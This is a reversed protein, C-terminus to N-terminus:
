FLLATERAHIKDMGQLPNQYPISLSRNRLTAGHSEMYTMSRTQPRGRARDAESRWLSARPLVRLPIQPYHRRLFEILSSGNMVPPSITTMLQKLIEFYDKDGELPNGNALCEARMFWQGLWDLEEPSTLDERIFGAATDSFEGRKRWGKVNNLDGSQYDELIECTQGRKEM